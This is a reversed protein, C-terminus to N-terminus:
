IILSSQDKDPEYLTIEGDFINEALSQITKERNVM